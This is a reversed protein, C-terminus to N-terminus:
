GTPPVAPRTCLWLRRLLAPFLLPGFVLFVFDTRSFGVGFPFWMGPIHLLSLEASFLGISAALIAPLAFWAERGQARVGKYVILALLLLLLLRVCTILYALGMAVVGPFVGHFLSTSLFRALIFLLTLLAAAKPLWAPDRLRFWSYWTRIWAGLYLPGILTFIFIEYERPTEYQAWYAFALNGRQLALLVAFFSLWLYSARNARDFPILCCTMVATLLLLLAEVVEHFYGLFTQQWQVRYRAEISDSEGLAPAMHLGGAEADPVIRSGGAAMWVRFALVHDSQPSALAQPLQFMRPQTTHVVPTAGSFDGIGGLLKGDVFVQYVDDVLAPGTLAFTSGAPATVSFRLRYWAYGQYGAHGGASWGPVYGSLGVDPDHAGPPATLDVSEWGSDDFAPEAWAPSDGTHFRWPGNLTVVSHGLTVPLASMGTAASPPVTRVKPPGAQPAAQAGAAAFAALFTVLLLHKM